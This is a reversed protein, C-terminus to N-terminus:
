KDTGGDTLDPSIIVRAKSGAKYDEYLAPNREQWRSQCEAVMAPGSVFMTFPVGKGDVDVMLGLMSAMVSPQWHMYQSPNNQVLVRLTDNNSAM